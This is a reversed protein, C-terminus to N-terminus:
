KMNYAVWNRADRYTTELYPPPNDRAARAVAPEVNELYDEGKGYSFYKFCDDNFKVAAIIALRAQADDAQPHACKLRAYAPGDQATDHERERLAVWERNFKERAEPANIDARPWIRPEMQEFTSNERWIFYAADRLPLAAAQAILDRVTRPMRLPSQCAAIIGAQDCVRAASNMARSRASVSADAGDAREQAPLIRCGDLLRPFEGHKIKGLVGM